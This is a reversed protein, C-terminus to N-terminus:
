HDFWAANVLIKQTNIIRVAADLVERSRPQNPEPRGPKCCEKPCVELDRSTAASRTETTALVDGDDGDVSVAQANLVKNQGVPNEVGVFVFDKSAKTQWGDCM